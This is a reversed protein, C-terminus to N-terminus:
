LKTKLQELKNDRYNMLEQYVMKVYRQYVKQRRKSDLNGLRPKLHDIVERKIESALSNNWDITYDPDIKKGQSYITLETPDTAVDWGLTRVLNTVINQTYAGIEQPSSAHLRTFEPGRKAFSKVFKERGKIGPALYSRYDFGIRGKKKEANQQHIHALEHVMTDVMSTVQRDIKYNYFVHELERRDFRKLYQQFATMLDPESFQNYFTDLLQLAFEKAITDLYNINLEIRYGLANGLDQIDTFRVTLLGKSDPLAIEGQRVLASCFKRSFLRTIDTHVLDKVRKFFDEEPKNILSTYDPETTSYQYLEKVSDIMAQKIAEQFDPEFKTLSIAETLQLLEFIRM